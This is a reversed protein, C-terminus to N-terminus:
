ASQDLIGVAAEGESMSVPDSPAYEEGEIAKEVCDLVSMKLDGGAYIM